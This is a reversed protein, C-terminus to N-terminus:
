TEVNGSAVVIGLDKDHRVQDARFLIRERTLGKTVPRTLTTQAALPVHVLFLGVVVAAITLSRLM